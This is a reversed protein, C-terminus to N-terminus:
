PKSNTIPSMTRTRKEVANATAHRYGSASSTGTKKPLHDPDRPERRPSLKRTLPNTPEGRFPSINRVSIPM